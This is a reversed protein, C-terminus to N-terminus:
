QTLFRCRLFSHREQNRPSIGTRRHRASDHARARGNGGVFANVLVLLAFQAGNARLGLKPSTM